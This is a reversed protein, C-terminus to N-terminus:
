RSSGCGVDLVPGEGAMLESAIRFRSRQWYRQLPIPSDFARYDYDAAAISNRLKWLSWFARFYATGAASGSGVLQGAGTAHLRLPNQM